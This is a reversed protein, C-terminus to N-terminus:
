SEPAFNLYLTSRSFCGARPGYRPFALGRVLAHNALWILPNLIGARESAQSFVLYINNAPPLSRYPSFTGWIKAIGWARVCVWSLWLNCNKGVCRIVAFAPKNNDTKQSLNSEFILTHVPSHWQISKCM